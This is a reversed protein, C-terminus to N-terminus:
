LIRQFDDAFSWEQSVLSLDGCLGGWNTAKKLPDDQYTLSMIEKLRKINEADRRRKSTARKQTTGFVSTWHSPPYMRKTRANIAAIMRKTLPLGAAVFEMARIYEYDM